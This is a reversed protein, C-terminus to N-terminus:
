LRLATPPWSARAALSHATLVPAPLNRHIPGVAVGAAELQARVWKENM